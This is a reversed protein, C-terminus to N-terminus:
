KTTLSKKVSRYVVEKGDNEYCLKREGKKDTKVKLKVPKDDLVCIKVKSVHLPAERELIRGKQNQQGKAHKKRVNIGQVIVKDGLHSLVTGTQGKENGSIVYVKDGKVIRKGFRQQKQKLKQM